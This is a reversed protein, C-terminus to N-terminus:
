DGMAFCHSAVTKSAIDQVSIRNISVTTSSTTEGIPRVICLGLLTRFAYPCGDKRPIVKLPELAKSCNGGTLLGFSIDKGQIIKDTIRELYERDKINGTTAPDRDGM